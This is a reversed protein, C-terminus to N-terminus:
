DDLGYLSKNGARFEGDQRIQNQQSLLNVCFLHVTVAASVNSQTWVIFYFSYHM